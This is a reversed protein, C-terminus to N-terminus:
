AAIAALLRGRRRAIIGTIFGAGVASAWSAVVRIAWPEGWLFIWAVAKQKDDPFYFLCGSALASPILAGAIMGCIVGAFTRATAGHKARYDTPSNFDGSRAALLEPNPYTQEESPPM